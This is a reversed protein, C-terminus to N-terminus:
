TSFVHICFKTNQHTTSVKEAVTVASDSRLPLIDTLITGRVASKLQEPSCNISTENSSWWRNGYMGSIIWQYKAGYLGLRFAKFSSFKWTCCIYFTFVLQLSVECFIKRAWTENFYGVIIRIDNELLKLLPITVNVLDLEAEVVKAEGMDRDLTSMLDVQAQRCLFFVKVYGKECM